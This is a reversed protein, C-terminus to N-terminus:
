YHCKGVDFLTIGYLPFHQHSFVNGFKAFQHGIVLTKERLKVSGKIKTNIGNALTEGGFLRFLQIRWLKRVGVNEAM